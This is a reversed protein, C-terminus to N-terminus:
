IYNWWIVLGVLLEPCIGWRGLLVSIDALLQKTSPFFQLYSILIHNYYIISFLTLIVHSFICHYYSDSGVAVSLSSLVMYQYLLCLM